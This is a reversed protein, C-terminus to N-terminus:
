LTLLFGYQSSSERINNMLIKSVLPLLHSLTFMCPLLFSLYYLSVFGLGGVQFTPGAKIFRKCYKALLLKAVPAELFGAAIDGNTLAQAYDEPSSYNKINKEDFRLVDKLYAAVFSGRCQGIMSNSSKLTEIDTVTPELREVTLMSTLNATYSQTIVLAVFLWVVM